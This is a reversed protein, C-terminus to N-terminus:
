RARACRRPPGRASRRPRSARPGALAERDDALAEHRGDRGTVRQRAALAHGQGVDRGVRHDAQGLAGADARDEVAAARRAARPRFRGAPWRARRRRRGRRARVRRRSGSRTSPRPRRAARARSRRGQRARAARGRRSLCPHARVARTRACNGCPTRTVVPGPCPGDRVGFGLPLRYRFGSEELRGAAHRASGTLSQQYAVATTAMAYRPRRQPRRRLKGTAPSRHCRTPGKGTTTGSRSCTRAVPASRSSTPGPRRPPQSSPRRSRAPTAWVMPAPAMSRRGRHRRRRSHRSWPPWRSAERLARM